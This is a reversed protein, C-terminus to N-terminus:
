HKLSNKKNKLKFGLIEFNTVSRFNQVCNPDSSKIHLSRDYTLLTYVVVFASGYYMILCPSIAIYKQMYWYIVMLSQGLVMVM